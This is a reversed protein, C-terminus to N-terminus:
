VDGRGLHAEPKNDVFGAFIQRVDMELFNVMVNLRGRHAMGIVIEEVGLDAARDMMLELMPIVSEAGELSFRKAGIFKTHLFQEFIEADSLKSLLGVQEDTTLDLRNRTSEMAHQLWDRSERDELFTY